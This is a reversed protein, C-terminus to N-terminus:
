VPRNLARLVRELRQKVEVAVPELEADGTVGLQIVPDIAAVTSTAEDDNAYVIVNCPLLLGIARDHSLARYALQPNCAGLIVYPRFALDLKRRFTAQVDIETLVGFGEDGLAARTRAVALEYPLMVTMTFGYATTETSMHTEDGKM